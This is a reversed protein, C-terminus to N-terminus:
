GNTEVVWFSSAGLDTALYSSVLHPDRFRCNPVSNGSFPDPFVFPSYDGQQPKPGANWRQDSGDLFRAVRVPQVTVMSAPYQMVAGTNLQPFLAM